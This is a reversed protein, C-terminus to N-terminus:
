TRRRHMGYYGVLGPLEETWRKDREDLLARFRDETMSSGRADIHTVPAFSFAGAGGRGGAPVVREGRELIAPFENPGLGSHFRPAGAFLMAPVNRGVGAGAGVLGGSHFLSAFISTAGKAVNGGGGGKGLVGLLLSALNGLLGSGKTKGNGVTGFLQDFAMSTGINLLQDGIKSLAKGAANALREFFGVGKETNSFLDSFFGNWADKLTGAITSALSQAQQELASLQEKVKKLKKERGGDDDDEQRNRANTRARGSVSEFFEGMFDRSGLATLREVLDGWGAGLRDQAGKGGIDIPDLNVSDIKFFGDWGLSQMLSAGGHTLAFSELTNVLGQIQQGALDVMMKIAKLFGNAAAEGAVIFYDPISQVHTGIIDVTGVIGRVIFNGANKTAQVVLDWNDAFWGSIGDIAPKAWQYLMDGFTQIVALAVDGFNVKISGGAKNIEHEMGAIAASVVGVAIGVPAFKTVLNAALGGISRIANGVGNQLIQSGQQLAVMGPNMGSALSVVVDNLQYIMMRQQMGVARAAAANAQLAASNVRAAGAAREMAQAEAEAAAAHQGAAAAAEKGRDAVQDLGNATAALAKGASDATGQVVVSVRLSM